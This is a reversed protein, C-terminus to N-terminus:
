RLKPKKEQAATRQIVDVRAAAEQQIKPDKTAEIARQYMAVAEETRSQLEYCKAMQMLSLAPWPQPLAGDAVRKYEAIAEDFKQEMFYTEGLMWTARAFASNQNAQTADMISQLHMRAADFDVQLVAARALLYDFEHLREFDAFRHKSEAVSKELTAYQKTKLLLECQRLAVTAAWTPEVQQRRAYADLWQLDSSAVQLEGARSAAEARSFRVAIQQADGLVSVSAESPLAKFAEKANGQALELESWLM